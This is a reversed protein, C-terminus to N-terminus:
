QSTSFLNETGVVHEGLTGPILMEREIEGHKAEAVTVGNVELTRGVAREYNAKAEVLDAMARLESGQASVLDRQTLIVNYVTSAGLQYKKQESNFTQEQLQRAKSAAQIRARGQRIAIYANRVDLLASNKLQQLQAEIQRQQLIARQNTAQASRNRIPISINLGVVYEPYQNHFIQSQSDGFGQYSVGNSLTSNGALGESNYQATLTATPRLANATARADIGANALNYQQELLDPRNALAEKVAEELSAAEVSDPAKPEDLPVIEVDVLNHAFPNKSIANKLTQEDQLRTTEAVILNQQDTALQSEARIVDLPAMTGIELQKKNDNFLKESVAVAQQQVRVNERAYVLEWYATILNTLTTIVQQRFSLDAIKANNKAILINRRNVSRGFGNLLQQNFSITLASQVYPNFLNSQSTSSARSNNWAVNMITGTAFGQSYQLNYQATHTLLSTAVATTGTGSTLPNNVPATQNNYSFSSSLTPDLNLSPVNATSQRISAGSVGQPLGGGEAQLIDTEGFWTDYRQVVLDMSNELALAVADQLRLALRGDHVLQDIRPSNAIASQPISIPRYPALLNPFARPAKGYHRDARELSRSGSPSASDSSAAQISGPSAQQAEVWGANLVITLFM